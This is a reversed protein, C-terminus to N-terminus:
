VRGTPLRYQHDCVVCKEPQCAIRTTFCPMNSSNPVSQPAHPNNNTSGNRVTFDPVPMALNDASATIKSHGITDTDFRISAGSVRDLADPDGLDTRLWQEFHPLAVLYTTDSKMIGMENLPDDLKDAGRKLVLYSYPIHDKYHKCVESLRYYCDRQRLFDQFSMHADLKHTRFIPNATYWPAFREMLVAVRGGIKRHGMILFPDDGRARIRAIQKFALKYKGTNAEDLISFTERLYFWGRSALLERPAANQNVENIAVQPM